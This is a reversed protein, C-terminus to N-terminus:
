REDFMDGLEVFLGFHANFHRVANKNSLVTHTWGTYYDTIHRLMSDLCRHHHYDTEEFLVVIGRRIRYGVGYYDLKM